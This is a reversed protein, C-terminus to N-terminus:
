PTRRALYLVTQVDLTVCDGVRRVITEFLRTRAAEDLMRYASQTSLYAVYDSATLTRQSRYLRPSLDDFQPSSELEPYPWSTVLGADDVPGTDPVIEPAYKRHAAVIEAVVAPDAPRDGNWFLALTGGPVLAAAARQWRVAPDTWHWAQASFLLGFPQEPVYEEFGCVRVVVDSRGSARRALVAAMAADPEVATIGVGRAAFALTAKGTGAGVELAAVEGLRAYSLVDDILVAPYGPRIRDYEDAVEGFVRARVRETTM